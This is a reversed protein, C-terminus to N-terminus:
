MVEGGSIPLAIGTIADATPLCLWYVAEAVDDPSIFRGQPNLAALAARAETEDRGTRAVIHAVSERLLDTETFGPCVANVTVGRTAVELAVARTFGVVGHKAAAYASVYPYGRLAATSAVTIVRGWGAALMGPM